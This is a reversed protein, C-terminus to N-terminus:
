LPRLAFLRAKENGVGGISAEELDHGRSITGSGATRGRFM